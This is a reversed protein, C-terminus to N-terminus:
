YCLVDAPVKRGLGSRARADQSQGRRPHSASPAPLSPAESPSVDTRSHGCDSRSFSAGGAVCMCGGRRSFGWPCRGPCRGICVHSSSLFRVDHLFCRGKQPDIGLDLGPTRQRSGGGRVQLLGFHASRQSWPTWRPGLVEAPLQGGSGRCCFFPAWSPDPVTRLQKLSLSFLLGGLKSLYLGQNM